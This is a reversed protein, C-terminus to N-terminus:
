VHMKIDFDYKLNGLIFVVNLYLLVFMINNYFMPPMGCCINQKLKM